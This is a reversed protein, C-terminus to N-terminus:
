DTRPTGGAARPWWRRERLWRREEPLLGGLLLLGAAYVVVGAPVAALAGAWSRIPLLALVAGMLAAAPLLRATQGLRPRWGALRAALGCGILLAALYAVVTSVAAGVLGWAPILVFNLAINLAAGVGFVVSVAWTWHGAFFIQNVIMTLGFLLVGVAAIWVVPGGERAVAEGALLGLVPAGVAALGVVSPVGLAAFYRFVRRLTEAAREHEGRDWMAGMRPLLTQRIPQVFQLLVGALAYAASYVGVAAAGMMAGLIFRDAKDMLERALAAPLTPASYRVAERVIASRPAAVGVTRVGNYVLVGTVALRWVAMGVLAPLLAPWLLLLVVAVVTEGGYVLVNLVSYLKVEGLGRLLGLQVANLTTGPILLAGVRFATAATPDRLLLAAAPSAAAWLLAAGAVSLVASAALISWFREARQRASQEGVLMRVAATRLNLEALAAGLMVVSLLQVWVGFAAAGLAGAILPLLIVGRLRLLLNGATVMGLEYFWGVPRPPRGPARPVPAGGRPRRRGAVAGRREGGAASASM